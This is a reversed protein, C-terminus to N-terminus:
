VLHPDKAIVSKAGRRHAAHATRTRPVHHSARPRDIDRHVIRPAACHKRSMGGAFITFYSPQYQYARAGEKPKM